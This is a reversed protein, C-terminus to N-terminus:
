NKNGNNKEWKPAFKSLESGWSAQLNLPGYVRFYVQIGEIKIWM